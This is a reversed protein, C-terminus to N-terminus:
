GATRTNRGSKFLLLGGARLGGATTRGLVLGGGARGSARRRQHGRLAVLPMGGSIEQAAVIPLGGPALLWGHDTVVRVTRWGADLLHIIRELLMTSNNRLRARWGRKCSTVWRTSNAMSRGHAPMRARRYAPIWATCCKIGPPRCDGRAAARGDSTAEWGRHGSLFGSGSRRGDGRACGADGGAQGDADGHAAASWRYGETALLQREHAKALLRQAVDFRLGDVFMLCEGPEAAVLREKLDARGPLPWKRAAAQFNRATDDLWGLYISRIAASCRRWTM